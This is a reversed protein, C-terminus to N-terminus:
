QLLHSALQIGLYTLLTILYKHFYGTETYFDGSLRTKSNIIHYTVFKQEAYGAKPHPLEM